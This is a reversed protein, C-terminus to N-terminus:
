VIDILMEKNICNTAIVVVNGCDDMIAMGEANKPDSAVYMDKIGDYKVPVIDVIKNITILPEAFVESGIERANAM